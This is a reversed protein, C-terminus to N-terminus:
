TMSSDSLYKLLAENLQKEFRSTDLKPYCIRSYKNDCEYEECSLSGAYYRIKNWKWGEPLINRFIYLRPVCPIATCSVGAPVLVSTYLLAISVLPTESTFHHSSVLRGAIGLKTEPKFDFFLFSRSSIDTVEDFNISIPDFNKHCYRLFKVFDM